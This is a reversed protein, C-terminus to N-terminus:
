QYCFSLFITEGVQFKNLSTQVNIIQEGAWIELMNFSGKFYIQNVVGKFDSNGASAIMFEEPRVMWKNNITEKKICRSFVPNETDLLNYDGFLGACYENVPNKYIHEPNGEQILEGNKILLIKDAWSLIDPADHSVMICSMKIQRTIDHIVSQIIKKHGADLNSFPEDLLILKPSTSLLRALAIRQKEGGSLEDTWRKLLHEIQCLTYIEHAAEASIKNAMELVEYVRYNNRLEFHQSLYAINKHGAILVEDPGKVREELLLVEGADPQILGGIMKLLTTKGSGTEGAIAIKQFHEQTFHIDKVSYIDGEKKSLGKVRLLSM